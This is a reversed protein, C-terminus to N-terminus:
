SIKKCRPCLGYLELRHYTVSFGRSGAIEDQLREITPNEFEQIDGCALCILHDHHETGVGPEYRIRGEHFRREKAIGAQVFLGMCRYVTAAGISRHADRVRECLEEVSVHADAALFAELVADRQRTSRLGRHELHSRM